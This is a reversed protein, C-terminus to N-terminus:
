NNHGYVPRHAGYNASVNIAVQLALWVRTQVGDPVSFAYFLNLTTTAAFALTNLLM